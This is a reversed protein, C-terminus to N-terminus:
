CLAVIQFRYGCAEAMVLKEHAAESSKFVSSVQGFLTQRNEALCRKRLNYNRTASVVKTEKGKPCLM